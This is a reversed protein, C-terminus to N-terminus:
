LSQTVLVGLSTLLPLTLRRGAALARLRVWPIAINFPSDWSCGSVQWCPRLLDAAAALARCRPHPLILPVTERTVFSKDVPASYTQLGGGSNAVQPIAINFLSDWSYWLVKWCPRLVDATRWWLECGPTHCYLLATERTGRSNDVPASYTQLGGGSSAVQPIAINFPINWSGRSFEVPVSCTKLCSIIKLFPRLIFPGRKWNRSARGLFRVYTLPWSSFNVLKPYIKGM